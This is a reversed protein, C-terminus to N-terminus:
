AKAPPPEVLRGQWSEVQMEAMGLSVGYVAHVQRALQERRGAILELQEESIRGWRARALAKITQWNAEIREWDM